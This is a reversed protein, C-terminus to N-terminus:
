LSVKTLSDTNSFYYKFFSEKACREYQVRNMVPVDQKRSMCREFARGSKVHNELTGWM